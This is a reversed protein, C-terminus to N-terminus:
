PRDSLGEDRQNGSLVRRMLRANVQGQDEFNTNFVIHLKDVMQAIQRIEPTMADLEDASYWYDFRSTSSAAGKINWTERNRGHLRMLAYRPHTAEWVLPVCNAFGQPSDVITHVVQLEREFAITSELNAGDFWSKNRFETAVTHGAMKEVCHEVHALGERNRLLWPAFQFHVLGLKGVARLPALADIFRRWLEDRIEAPTHKYYIVNPPSGDFHKHLAQQLDKHLALPSTQHGTFLRFAKINFTFDDPTREAWLQSNSPTPVGYYSSDVEVLPFQSAYYRLRAEASVAGKPYFRGCDILSKDTWAASGILIDHM